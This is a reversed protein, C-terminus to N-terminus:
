RTDCAYGTQLIPNKPSEHNSPKWYPIPYRCNSLFLVLQIGNRLEAPYFMGCYIASYIKPPGHVPHTVLFAPLFFPLAIDIKTANDLDKQSLTM